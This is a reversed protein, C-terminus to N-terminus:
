KDNLFEYYLAKSLFTESQRKKIIEERSMGQYGDFKRNHAMDIKNLKFYEQRAEDNFNLSSLFYPEVGKNVSINYNTILNGWNVYSCLLVTAYFYWVMHNILYANTKQKTIKLFTFVLGIVALTLFAYVGLRKYTLGFFSVYESNKIITSIILVGNLAIWLKALKKLKSAKPDFNFGGKFYFLIVGVAMIISFIVANVREHTAASLKSMTVVADKAEFFQEYNYVAIFVLLLCNLLLLTIQGSKREFDIDLFSFTSEHTSVLEDNFDNDLKSNYEYCADPVWYNWFNFSFFFGWVIIILLESFNIDLQYNTFLASFHDSGFSYVIFFMGLFLAPIVVYAIIKKAFNNNVKREPIWQAFMLVRGLSALPNILMVPFVQIIKLENEQTKFQLMVVSLFMALGSIPDGYWAFAFCSLVSTVVLILHTRNVFRDQFFYCILGTLFLMFIALNVGVEEKYFLLIFAISSVAIFHIKKM